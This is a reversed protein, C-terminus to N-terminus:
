HKEIYFFESIIRDTIFRKDSQVACYGKNIEVTHLALQKELEANFFMKLASNDFNTVTNLLFGKRTRLGLMIFENYRDVVTLEEDSFYSNGEQLHRCYQHLDRINWTRKNGDFSHASPGLGLYKEGTWYNSNHQSYLGPLAFNSIEYNDFGGKTLAEVLYDFQKISSEEPVEKLKGKKLYDYYLTGKEFTLHYASIHQVESEVAMQVNVKWEDFSMYPLGYILDISMNNVGANKARTIADLAQSANHRRNMKRLHNDFFSQVGMSIRNVGADLLGKIYDHTVDDPNVEVTFENVKEEPVFRFMRQLICNLEDLSLSSPTGGGFYVTNIDENSLFSANLDIEKCIAKIYEGKLQQNTTKYFDCYSCQTYCFPVHIYIGAM